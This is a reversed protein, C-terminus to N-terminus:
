GTGKTHNLLFEEIQSIQDLNLKGFKVGRRRMKVSSFENKTEIEFDAITKFSLNKSNFGLGSIFIDLEMDKIPGKKDGVYTFSLGGSSIDLIQGLKRPATTVAFAGEKTPFRRFARKEVLQTQSM